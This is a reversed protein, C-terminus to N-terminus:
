IQCFFIRVGLAQQHRQLVLKVNSKTVKRDLAQALLRWLKSGVDRVYGDDYGHQKAIAQYSFGEWTQQLVIEQIKSLSTPYLIHKVLLVAEESTM